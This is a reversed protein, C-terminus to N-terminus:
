SGGEKLAEVITNAFKTVVETGSGTIITSDREVDAGTLNAGAKTLRGRQSVYCAAKVGSLVGANALIAPATSIAALVKGKAKAQRAIDQAVPDNFYERAGSGGIFVVADYDDVKIASILIQAEAIGGQMARIPGTKSSAITTLVNADELVKQTEFLEQDQFHSPAIILVAKKQKVQSMKAASAQETQQVPAAVPHGVPIIYFPEMPIALRCLRRVAGAEFAGIPVAGLDLAVAQLLINQAVHGAELITFTRAMPGYKLALERASGVIIIDCPAQVVAAQGRAAESLAARIDDKLVELFTHDAANYVFLGQPTAFYVKIPYIAGASPATRFGTKQEIVGQAAWALQGLQAYDLPKPSFSRVSHRAALAAELSMTGTLRPPPLQIIQSQQTGERRQGSALTVMLVFAAIAALALKM